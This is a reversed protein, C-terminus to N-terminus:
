FDFYLLVLCDATYSLLMCHILEACSFLICPKTHICLLSQLVLAMKLTTSNLSM